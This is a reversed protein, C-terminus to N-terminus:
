PCVVNVVEVDDLNWGSCTYVGSSGIEFGFRVRMNNNKYPAIDFMQQNWTADEINPPPGSAFLPQWTAGDFVEVYNNMYPTYDSNLWRYFSVWMPGSVAATNIIPSTIYYPPHVSFGAGSIDGGINAGAIGNDATSTNDNAPDMNGCSGATGGATASGIEWDIDMTWGANNNAFDESFYVTQPLPAGGACVGTTCTEGGTCSNGDECVGGENTPVPQCIGAMDCTGNNCDDAASLCSGGQPVPESICQGSMTDCAGNFCGQTLASCDLPGGGVCVGAGDCTKGVTCLENPDTCAVGVPGTQPECAGNAPNCVSEYCENPIPAFFCDKAVGICLGNTCTGGVECLSAPTCAGGNMVPAVGCAQSAEDCTVLECGDPVIGCTNPPGGLCVGAGDCSDNVTCFQGDDCSTAAEAPIVTCSGVPGPHMGENCVSQFCDQVVIATCDQGCPGVTPDGGTGGQSDGGMSTTTTTGGQGGVNSEDFEVQGKACAAGVVLPLVGLGVILYWPRSLGFM